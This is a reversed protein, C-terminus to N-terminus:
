TCGQYSWHTLTSLKSHIYICLIQCNSWL